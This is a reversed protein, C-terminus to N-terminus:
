DQLRRAALLHHKLQTQSQEFLGTLLTYMLDLHPILSDVVDLPIDQKSLSDRKDRVAVYEKNISEELYTRSLSALSPHTPFSPPM